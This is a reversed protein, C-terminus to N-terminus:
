KINITKFFFNLSLSGELKRNSVDLKRDTQNGSDPGELCVESASVGVVPLLTSLTM